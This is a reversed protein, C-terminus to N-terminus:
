GGTSNRLLSFKTFSYLGRVIQNVTHTTCFVIGPHQRSQSALRLFDRDRTVIVRGESRIFALHAADDKTRLEAETTTSVDVGHQRLARAM